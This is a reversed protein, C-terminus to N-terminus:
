PAPNVQVVPILQPDSVAAKGRKKRKNILPPCKNENHWTMQCDLCYHCENANIRGDPHIAQIECEKACLQCPNGCEKRRKLWDFLRLRTPMALAAGLPCVYRCYVKRTFLNIVLLGVAYAVFWWQRDFRLTIATKFPEVEALREATAMSELSVGFLVLLIIYKIAWLREHVAFPLEYQPVKLKRALENILEQLAGFPCLWGCFVGRGWLVISGATFVWLIFILPDTLFLEWRFGEFLAHVFTLVNVVSLQALAYGGLFVVTFVLYGRRLWHLLTPRRALSDQFFLIATLVLLAVGLVTIEVSKQYWLTLWMPRSAEEAAALQEATPLPRELYPEPLQYALEFSSFIGSVPGTQRRILLELSWPSGPDFRHSARVIFVAMEDFEPMDEAAVDDLRQFDMDRFSIVDGFQRVLVRDFIGGRVYGSGKFSYRGSGMVAIAQEGPKLESMLTRYQGDGLLNRGITPPNLHTVYLDIFTDDAQAASAVEVQEADTGKFTADVQGRTLHLRRVAGNGTLTKWDAPEYIDERVRAPAVALGADGKVLGLSVAVDHAARMIVENVVMATVTAGAIADVTVANPDSSHGVVVRQNVKIGSYRASFAHLKEEAIGILLIPEHHELVYADLIVGAPDLIVQVNIPKGSYAPIDVVDLSQFVYGLVKGAASLTRVKFRGEPESIADTQGLVHHIRQQPTDGYDKAQALGTFLLLFVFLGRLWLRSLHLMVFPPTM